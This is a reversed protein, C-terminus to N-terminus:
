PAELYTFGALRLLQVEKDTLLSIAAGLLVDFAFLFSVMKRELTEWFTSTTVLWAVAM